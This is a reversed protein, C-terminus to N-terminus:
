MVCNIICVNMLKYARPNTILISSHCINWHGCTGLDEGTAKHIHSFKGYVYACYLEASICLLTFLM